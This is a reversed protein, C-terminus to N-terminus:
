FFIRAWLELRRANQKEGFDTRAGGGLFFGRAQLQVNTIGTYIVEPTVSVV